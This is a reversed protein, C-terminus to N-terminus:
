KIRIWHALAGRPAETFGVGKVEAPWTKPDFKETNATNSDGAKITAILKDLFYKQKRAAWQAELARAATRGLTSFLAELPVQLASLTQDVQ